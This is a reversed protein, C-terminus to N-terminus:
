NKAWLQGRLKHITGKVFRSEKLNSIERQAAELHNKFNEHELEFQEVIEQNKTCKEYLYIFDQTFLENQKKVAENEGVLNSIIEVNKRKNEETKRGNEEIEVLLRKVQGKLDQIQLQSFDREDKDAELIQIKDQFIKENESLLYNKQKLEAIEKQLQIENNFEKKKQTQLDNLLQELNEIKLQAENWETKSHNSEDVVENIESQPCECVM